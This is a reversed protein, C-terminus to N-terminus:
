VGAGQDKDNLKAMETAAALALPNGIALVSAVVEQCRDYPTEAKKFTYADSNSLVKLETRAASLSHLLAYCLQTNQREEDNLASAIPLISSEWVNTSWVPVPNAATWEVGNLDEPQFDDIKAQDYELIKLNQSIELTLMARIAKHLEATTKEERARSLDDARKAAQLAALRGIVGGVVAGLLIGVLTLVDSPKLRNESSHATLASSVAGAPSDTASVAASGQSGGAQASKAVTSDPKHQSRQAFTCISTILLVTCAIRRLANHSM